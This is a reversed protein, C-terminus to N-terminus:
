EGLALRQFLIVSASDSINEVQKVDEKLKYKLNVITSDITKINYEISDLVVKNYTTDVQEPEPYKKYVYHKLRVLAAVILIILLILGIIHLLDKLMAKKNEM